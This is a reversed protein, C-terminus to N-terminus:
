VELYKILNDIRDQMQADFESEHVIDLVTYEFREFTAQINKLDTKNIKLIIQLKNEAVVQKVVVNLIVADNSEVIRAIESLSYDHLDTEITIIGGNQLLENDKLYSMLLSNATCFGLILGSNEVIPFISNDVQEIKRLIEFIHTDERILLKEELPQILELITSDEELEYLIDSAVYGFVRKQDDAIFVYKSQYQECWEIAQYVLTDEYLFRVEYDITDKALMILKFTCDIHWIDFYLVCLFSFVFCFLM